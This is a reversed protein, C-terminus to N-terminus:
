WADFEAPEHSEDTALSCTMYLTGLEPVINGGFAYIGSAPCEPQSDLMKDPGFIENELNVPPVAAGVNEGNDYENTNAYGRVALQVNRINVICNARDAGRKWAGVGVFTLAILALMVLIIVTLEILTMGRRMSFRGASLRQRKM